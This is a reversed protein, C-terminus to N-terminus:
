MLKEIWKFKETHGVKFTRINWLFIEIKANQNCNLAHLIKFRIKRIEYFDMSFNEVLQTM